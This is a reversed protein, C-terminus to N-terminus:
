NRWNIIGGWIGALVITFIIIGTFTLWSEIILKGFCFYILIMAWMGLTVVSVVLFAFIISGIVIAFIANKFGEWFDKM